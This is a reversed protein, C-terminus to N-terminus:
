TNESKSIQINGIKLGNKWIRHIIESFPCSTTSFPYFIKEASKAAAKDHIKGKCKEVNRLISLLTYDNNHTLKRFSANLSGTRRYKFLFRVWIIQTIGSDFLPSRSHARQILFSLYFLSISENLSAHSSM